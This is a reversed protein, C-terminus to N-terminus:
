KSKGVRQERGKLSARALPTLAGVRKGLAVELLTEAPVVM